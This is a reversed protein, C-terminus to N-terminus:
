SDEFRQRSAPVAAPTLRVVTYVLFLMTCVNEMLSRMIDFVLICIAYLFCDEQCISPFRQVKGAGDPAEM